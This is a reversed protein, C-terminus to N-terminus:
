YSIKEISDFSDDIPGDTPCLRGSEEDIIEYKDSLKQNQNTKIKKIEGCILDFTEAERGFVSLSNVINNDTEVSYTIIPTFIPFWLSPLLPSSYSILPVAQTIHTTNPEFFQVWSNIVYRVAWVVCYVIM